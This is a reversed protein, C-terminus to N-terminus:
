GEFLATLYGGFRNFTGSVLLIGVLVLVVGSAIEIAGYYKRIGGFLRLAANIFLATLIFPIGLGLSYAALLLTGRLVTDQTSAVILISSLIPGVCPTWGAAFALGILFPGIFGAKPASLQVRKERYFLPIRILGTLHVGFVIVLAGGVYRIIHQYEAVQGGLWSASAGLATFIATFGLVFFLANLLVNRVSPGSAQLEELSAGTIFSIYAPMLPLVCPSIFTLIGATFSALVPFDGFQFM